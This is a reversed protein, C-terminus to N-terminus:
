RPETVSSSMTRPRAFGTTSSRKQWGPPLPTSESHALPQVLLADTHRGLGRAVHSAAVLLRATSPGTLGGARGSRRRCRGFLGEVLKAGAHKKRPTLEVAIQRPSARAVGIGDPDRLRHQLLRLDGADVAAPLGPELAERGHVGERRCARCVHERLPLAKAVVATRQREPVRSALHALVVAAHHRHVLGLQAGQRSDAGGRRGADAGEGVVQRADVELRVDAGDKEVLEKGLGVAHWVARKDREHALGAGARAGLNGARVHGARGTAPVVRQEVVAGVELPRHGVRRPARAGVHALRLELPRVAM